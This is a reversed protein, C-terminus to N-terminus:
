ENEAHALQSEIAKRIAPAIQDISFPKALFEQAGAKRMEEKVECEAIAGTKEDRNIRGSMGVLAHIGAAKAASMVDAGVGKQPIDWDTLVADLGGNAMAATIRERAEDVSNAIIVEFDGERKLIREALVPIFREDDVVLVKLKNAESSNSM